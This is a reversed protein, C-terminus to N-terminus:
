KSSSLTSRIGHLDKYEEISQSLATLCRLTDKDSNDLWKQYLALGMKEFFSLKNTISPDIMLELSHEMVELYQKCFTLSASGVPKKPFFDGSSFKNKEYVADCEKGYRELDRLNTANSIKEWAPNLQRLVMLDKEFTKREEDDIFKTTDQFLTEMEATFNKLRQANQKHTEPM